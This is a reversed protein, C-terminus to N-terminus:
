KENSQHKTFFNETKFAAFSFLYGFLSGILAGALIDSPYHVGLYVRSLAILFAVVLFIWKYSPYFRVLFTAAAFNNLAHNSPFSFSGSCGIPTLADALANCPRIRQFAEKLIKHGTQDSFTILVILSIVVIKGRTGGKFFAIGALILYAIYWKHVDTIISFFKDLFGTSITHNVFYFVVLDITYFFDM